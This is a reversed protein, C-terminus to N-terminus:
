QYREFQVGKAFGIPLVIVIRRCAPEAKNQM